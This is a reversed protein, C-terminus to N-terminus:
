EAARDAMVDHFREDAWDAVHPDGDTPSWLRLRLEVTQGPDVDLRYWWAAKTGTQTPSVTPADGVVHDNIGDKPFPTTPPLGHIRQQNTENECFLPRPLQGNPGPAAALRYVGARQHGAVIDGDLRMEPKEHRVGWSWTDRFWMTPLVHLTERDPGENTVTIRLSIDTPDTKAYTAEISWYRDDEFVGTDLLEYEPEDRNRRANEAVLDDYPFAAQPYHYRWRLYSHSPTADVYWWYEKADEGHNGEPGTLGFIREKLIPDRGNWFALAFCLRQEVDCMGALGDESWRYTRSRAHDHPLYEWARGDASYDERVTGWARESVYPGFAWWRGPQDATGEAIRAREPDTAARAVSSAITTDLLPAVSTGDHM